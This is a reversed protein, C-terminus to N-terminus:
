RCTRVYPGDPLCVRNLVSPSSRRVLSPLIGSMEQCSGLDHRFYSTFTLPVAARLQYVLEYASHLNIVM